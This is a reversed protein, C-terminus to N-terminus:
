CYGLRKNIEICIVNSTGGMDVEEAVEIANVPLM